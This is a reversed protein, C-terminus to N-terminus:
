SVASSYPMFFIYAITLCGFFVGLIIEVAKGVGFDELSPATPAEIVISLALIAATTALYLPILRM